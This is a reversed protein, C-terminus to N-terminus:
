RTVERFVVVKGYLLPTVGGLSDEFEIDYVYNSEPKTTTEGAVIAATQEDTLSFTFAGAAADTITCTLSAIIDVDLAKRRIQGRVSGATLDMPTGDDNTLNVTAGFSAGQKVKLDLNEGYTGISPTTAM